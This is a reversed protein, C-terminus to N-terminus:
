AEATLCEIGEGSAISVLAKTAMERENTTLELENYLNKFNSSRQMTTITAIPLSPREKKDKGSNECIVVVVVKKGKHNPLPNRQVELQSLELTGEKIRFHM